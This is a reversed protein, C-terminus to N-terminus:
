VGLVSLFSDNFVTELDFIAVYTQKSAFLLDEASEDELSMKDLVEGASRDAYRM